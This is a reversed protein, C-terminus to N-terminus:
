TRARGASDPPAPLKRQEARILRLWSWFYVALAGHLAGTMLVTTWEASLPACAPGATSWPPQLGRWSTQPGTDYTIHLPMGTAWSVGAALLYWGGIVSFVAAALTAAARLWALTRPSQEATAQAAPAPAVVQFRPAEDAGPLADLRPLVAGCRPCRQQAPRVPESCWQCRDVRM